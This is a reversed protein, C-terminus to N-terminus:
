RPGSTTALRTTRTPRAAVDPRRRQDIYGSRADTKDSRCALLDVLARFARSQANVTKELRIILKKLEGIGDTQGAVPAIAALEDEEIPEVEAEPVVEEEEPEPAKLAPRAKARRRSEGAM